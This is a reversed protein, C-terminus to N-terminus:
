TRSQPGWIISLGDGQLRINLYSKGLRSNDSSAVGDRLAFRVAWLADLKHLYVSPLGSKPPSSFQNSLSETQSRGSTSLRGM